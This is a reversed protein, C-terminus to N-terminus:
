KAICKKFGQKIEARPLPAKGIFVLTSKRAEGAAWPMGREGTFVMHVGQCVLRRAEGKVHLFGKLRYLKEGHTQELSFLLGNPPSPPNGPIRTKFFTPFGLSPSVSSCARAPNERLGSVQLMELAWTNFTDADLPAEEVLTFTEVSSRHARAFAGPEFLGDGSFTGFSGLGKTAIGLASAVEARGRDHKRREEASQALAPPIVTAKLDFAKIGLLLAPPVRGTPGSRVVDARPNLSRVLECVGEVSRGSGEGSSREGAGSAGSCKSGGDKSGGGGSAADSAAGDSAPAAPEAALLLESKNM